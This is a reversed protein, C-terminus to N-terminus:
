APWLGHFHHVPGHGHGVNLQNAALLAQTLYNKAARVAALPTGHQPLLAAIAASLTCGTGHTNKTSVRPATLEIQTKGDDFIDISQPGDLHGGKLLIFRPGLRHLARAAARM